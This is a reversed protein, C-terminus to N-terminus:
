VAVDAVGRLVFILRRREVHMIRRIGTLSVGVFRSWAPWPCAMRMTDETSKWGLALRCQCGRITTRVAGCSGRTEGPPSQTRSCFAGPWRGPQCPAQTLPASERAAVSQTGRVTPQANDHPSLQCADFLGQLRSGGTVGPCRAGALVREGGCAPVWKLPRPHHPKRVTRGVGTDVPASRVASM